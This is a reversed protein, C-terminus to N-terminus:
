RRDGIAQEEPYFAAHVAAETHADVAGGRYAPLRAIERAGLRAVWADKGREKLEVFELPVLVHRDEKLLFLDDALDVDLYRVKLATPDVLMETVTGVREGDAGFVNWGRLDPAGSSLKFDRAESLPVIPAGGAPMSPPLSEADGYVRPHARRMEELVDATLVATPDFDPLGLVEDRSWRSSVFADGAGWELARVPLLVHKRRLFGTDVDVFCVEGSRREILLDGVTGIKQGAPDLV